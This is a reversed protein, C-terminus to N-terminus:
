EAVTHLQSRPFEKRFRQARHALVYVIPYSLAGVIAGLIVSGIVLPLGITVFLSHVTLWWESLGHDVFLQKFEKWSITKGCFLTGIKYSYWCLPITTLPNSVYVGLLAAIRNFRFLWGTAFAILVVLAMQIGGTPTIGVFLGIATGLAISHPSDDLHLITHMWQRPDLYRLCWSIRHAVGGPNQARPTVAPQPLPLADSELPHSAFPKGNLTMPESKQAVPMSRVTM